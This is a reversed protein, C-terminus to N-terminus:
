DEKLFVDSYSFTQSLPQFIKLMADSVVNEISLQLEKYLLDANENLAANMNDSLEKNNFLNEFNVRLRFQFKTLKHLIEYIFM